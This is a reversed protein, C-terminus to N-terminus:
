QTVTISRDEVTINTTGGAGGGTAMSVAITDFRFQGAGDSEIMSDLRALVQLNGVATAIESAASAALADSDIADTAVVRASVAGSVFATEPISDAECGHLTAAVHGNGTGSVAVSRNNNNSILIHKGLSNAPWAYTTLMSWTAIAIVDQLSNASLASAGLELVENISGNGDIGLLSFNGPFAVILDTKAKIAAVETDVYSALTDVSTQSARNAVTTENAVSAPFTVAASANVTQGALQVANAKRNRNEISFTRLVVRTLDKGDVTGATFVIDYDEGTTYAADASTDVVVMHLGAKGDYDATVTIGATIETTSNKYVAFTMAVSPTTPVFAQSFTNFKIRVSSGAIFDGIYKTM